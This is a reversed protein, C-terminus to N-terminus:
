GVAQSIHPGFPQVPAGHRHDPPSQGRLASSPLLVELGSLSGGQEPLFPSEAVEQLIAAHFQSTRKEVYCGM